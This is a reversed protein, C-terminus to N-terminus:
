DDRMERSCYRPRFESGPNLDAARKRQRSRGRPGPRASRCRAGGHVLLLDDSPQNYRDRNYVGETRGDMLICSRTTGIRVLPRARWGRWRFHDLSSPGAFSGGLRRGRASGRADARAFGLWAPHGGLVAIDGRRTSIRWTSNLIAAMRSLAPARRSGGSRSDKRKERFALVAALARRVGSRVFADALRPHPYTGVRQMAGNMISYGNGPQSIGPPTTRGIGGSGRAAADSGPFLAVVNAASSFAGALAGPRPPSATAVAPVPRAADRRQRCRHRRAFLPGTARRSGRAVALVHAPHDAPCPRRGPTRGYALTPAM